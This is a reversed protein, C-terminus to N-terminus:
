VLRYYTNRQIFHQIPVHMPPLGFSDFYEAHGNGDYFVVVWHLGSSRSPDTNIVYCSRRQTELGMRRPLMDRPFVGRFVRRAHTDRLLIDSIEKSNM